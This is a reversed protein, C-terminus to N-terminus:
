FRLEPHHDLFWKGHFGFVDKLTRPYETIDLELAFRACLSRPAFRFGNALATGYLTECIYRDQAMGDLIPIPNNAIWKLFQRSMICCAGNGGNPYDPWPAGIWDYMLFDDTWKDPNLIYGDRHISFIHDCNLFRWFERVLWINYGFMNGSQFSCQIHNVYPPLPISPSPSCISIRTFFGQPMLNHCHCLLNLASATDGMDVLVLEILPKM